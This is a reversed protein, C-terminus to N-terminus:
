TTFTLQGYYNPFDKRFRESFSEPIRWEREFYFNSPDEEELNQEFFKMYSCFQYTIFTFYILDERKPPTGPLGAMVGQHLKSYLKPLVEDFYEAKNNVGIRPKEFIGRTLSEKPIYFVPAAGQRVLFNKNFALGFPGYKEIHINLDQLPIDCFCVMDAIVMENESPRASANFEASVSSSYPKEPSHTLRKGKIIRSLREYRVEDTNDDKGLFHTLENSIYRQQSKM